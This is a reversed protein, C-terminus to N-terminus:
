TFFNPVAGRDLVHLHIRDDKGPVAEFARFVKESEDGANDSRVVLRFRNFQAHDRAQRGEMIVRGLATCLSEAPESTVVILLRGGIRLEADAPCAKVASSGRRVQIDRFLEDPCNCGIVERVFRTVAATDAIPPTVPEKHMLEIVCVGAPIDRRKRLCLSSM